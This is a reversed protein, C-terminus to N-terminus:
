RELPGTFGRVRTASRRPERAIPSESLVNTLTETDTETDTPMPQANRGSANRMHPRMAPADKESHPRMPKAHGKWRAEAAEHAQQSKRTRDMDVGCCRYTDDTVLMIKGLEVLQEVTEDPIRRPLDGAEPYVIDANLRLRLWWALLVDDSYFAEERIDRYVPTYRREEGAVAVLGSGPM